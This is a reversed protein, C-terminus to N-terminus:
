LHDKVIVCDHASVRNHAHTRHMEDSARTTIYQGLKGRKRGVFNDPQDDISSPHGLSCDLKDSVYLVFSLIAASSNGPRM